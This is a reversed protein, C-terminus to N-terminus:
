GLSNKYLNKVELERLREQDFEAKKITEELRDREEFRAQQVQKEIEGDLRDRMQRANEM